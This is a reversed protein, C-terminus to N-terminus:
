ENDLPSLRGVASKGKIEGDLATHHLISPHDTAERNDEDTDIFLYNLTSPQLVSHDKRGPNLPVAQIYSTTKKAASSRPNLTGGTSLHGGMSPLSYPDKAFMFNTDGFYSTVVIKNEQLQTAGYEEFTAHLEDELAKSGLLASPFHVVLTRYKHNETEFNVGAMIIEKDGHWVTERSIKYAGIMDERVYFGMSQRNDNHGLVNKGQLYEIFVYDVDIEKDGAKAKISFSSREKKGELVAIVHPSTKNLLLAQSQAQFDSGHKTKLLNGLMKRVEDDDVGKRSKMTALDLTEKHMDQEWKIGLNEFAERSFVAVVSFDKMDEKKLATSSTKRDEISLPNNLEDTSNSRKSRTKLKMPVAEKSLPPQRILNSLLDRDRLNEVQPLKLGEMEHSRDQILLSLSRIIYPRYGTSRTFYMRRNSRTLLMLSNSHSFCM